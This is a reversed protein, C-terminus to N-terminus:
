RSPTPWFGLADMLNLKPAQVGGGMPIETYAGGIKGSSRIIGVPAAANAGTLEPRTESSTAGDASAPPKTTSIDLTINDPGIKMSTPGPQDKSTFGGRLLDFLAKNWKGREAEGKALAEQAAMSQINQLTPVGIMEGVGGAGFRSGMGALLSLFNRDKTLNEWRDGWGAIGERPVIMANGANYDTFDAM